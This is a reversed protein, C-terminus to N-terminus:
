PALDPLKNQKDLRQDIFTGDPETLLIRVPFTADESAYWLTAATDDPGVLRKVPTALWTGAPTVITEPAGIQMRWDARGNAGTVPVVFTQQGSQKAEAIWNPLAFFLSVRDQMDPAWSAAGADTYRVQKTTPDLVAERIRKGDDVFRRPEPYGNVLLGTSTQKRNFVFLLSVQWAASYHTANRQWTLTAKAKYNIGSKKGNVAYHLSVSPQGRSPAAGHVWTIPTACLAATVWAGKLILQRRSQMRRDYRTM